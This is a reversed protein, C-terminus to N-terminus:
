ENVSIFIKLEVPKNMNKFDTKPKTLMSLQQLKDMLTIRKPTNTILSTDFEPAKTVIEDDFLREELILQTSRVTEINKALRPREELKKKIPSPIRTEEKISV